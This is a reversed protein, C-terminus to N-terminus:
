KGPCSVERRPWASVPFASALPPRLTPRPPTPCLLTPYTMRDLVPGDATPGGHGAEKPTVAGLQHWTPLVLQLGKRPQSGCARSAGGGSTQCFGPHCKTPAQPLEPLGMSLTHGSAQTLPLGRSKLTHSSRNGTPSPSRQRKRQLGQALGVYDPPLQIPRGMGPGAQGGGWSDARLCLTSHSHPGQPLGHASDRLCPNQSSGLSWQRHDCTEM